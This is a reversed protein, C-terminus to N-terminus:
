FFSFNLEESDSESESEPDEIFGYKAVKEIRTYKKASQLEWTTFCTDKSFVIYKLQSICEVTESEKLDSLELTNKKNDIVITEKGSPKFLFNLTCKSGSTKPSKIFKNFMQKINESPIKKGFWEEINESVHDLVHEDIRSLFDYVKRYYKTSDSIFELEIGKLNISSITMKPFQIVVDESIKCIFYDGYKKPKKFFLNEINIDM